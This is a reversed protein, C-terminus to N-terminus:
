SLPNAEGEGRVYREMDRLLTEAAGSAEDGDGSLSGHESDSDSDSGNGLQSAPSDPFDMGEGELSVLSVVVGHESRAIKERLLELPKQWSGDRITVYWFSVSRLGDGLGGIFAEMEHRLVSVNEIHLKQLNPHRASALVSGVYPHEANPQRAWALVSALAPLSVNSDSAFELGQADFDMRQLAEGSLLAALYGETNSKDETPLPGPRRFRLNFSLRGVDVRRLSSFAARLRGWGPQAEGPGGLPRLMDLNSRLPLTSVALEQLRVGGEFLAIPVEWLLRAPLLVPVPSQREITAWDLPMVMMERLKETDRAPRELAERTLSDFPSYYHDSFSLARLGTMRSASAALAAAYSGDALVRGQDEQRRRYEGYCEYLFEKFRSPDDAPWPKEWGDDGPDTCEDWASLMYSYTEVAAQMKQTLEDHPDPDYLYRHCNTSVRSIRRVQLDRYQVFNEVADIPRYGLLLQILRVGSAIHPNRTLGDIRRLSESDISARLVPVLLPSALNHFRRCVLRASQLVALDEDGADRTEEQFLYTLPTDNVDVDDARFYDFIDCLLEDPLDLIHRRGPQDQKPSPQEM